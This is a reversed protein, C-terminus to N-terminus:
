CGRGLEECMATRRDLQSKKLSEQKKMEMQMSEQFTAPKALAKQLEAKKRLREKM